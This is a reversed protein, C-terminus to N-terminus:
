TILSGLNLGDCRENPRTLSCEVCQSTGSRSRPVPSYLDLALETAGPFKQDKFHVSGYNPATNHVLSLVNSGSPQLFISASFLQYRRSMQWPAGIQKKEDLRAHCYELPYIRYWTLLTSSLGCYGGIRSRGGPQNGICPSFRSTIISGHLAAAPKIVAKSDAVQSGNQLLVALLRNINAVM